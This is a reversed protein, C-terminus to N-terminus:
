SKLWTLVPVAKQQFRNFVTNFSRPFLTNCKFATYLSLLLPVYSESGSVKFVYYGYDFKVEVSSYIYVEVPRM